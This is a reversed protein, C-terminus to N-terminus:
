SLARKAASWAATLEELSRQGLAGGFRGEMFRFRDEFRGLAGRCAREPDIGLYDALFATALLVDGLEAEVRERELDNPDVAERDLDVGALAERLEDIEEGVKELAGAASAWRFGTAVARGCTRAARQLAPLSRPVGALASEDGGKERREDAKIEEWQRLVHEPDSAEAEGFVHPHRRVLKESVTRAADALDFREEEGAIRCILALVMLVDGAEEVTEGDDGADVAEVLEHAEEILHSAMSDVTQERDWPCGGPERLRDVIELLRGIARLREDAPSEPELDEATM